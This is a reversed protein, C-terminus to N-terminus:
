PPPPTRILSTDRYGGTMFGDVLPTGDWAGQGAEVGPAADKEGRVAHVGRVLVM